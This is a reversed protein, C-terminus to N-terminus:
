NGYAQGLHVHARLGALREGRRQAAALRHRAPAEDLVGM